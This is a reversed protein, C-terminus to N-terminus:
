NRKYWWYVARICVNLIAPWKLTYIKQLMSKWIAVSCQKISTKQTTRFGKFCLSFSFFIDKRVLSLSIIEIMKFLSILVIKYPACVRFPFAVCRCCLKACSSVFQYTTNTQVYYIDPLLSFCIAEMEENAKKKM